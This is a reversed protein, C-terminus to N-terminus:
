CRRVLAATLPWAPCKSMTSSCSNRPPWSRPHVIEVQQLDFPASHPMRRGSDPHHGFEVGAHQQAALHKGAAADAPQGFRLFHEIEAGRMVNKRVDLDDRHLFM